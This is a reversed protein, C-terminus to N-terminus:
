DTRDIADLDAALLAREQPDGVASLVARAAALHEDHLDGAGAVLAARAIAEHAYGVYFPSLGHDVAVRLSRRAFREALEGMGLEAAVRSVQWDAVARNRPAGVAHWHFWQGLTAALMEDDEDATRTPLELLEWARNFLLPGMRRHIGDLDTPEPADSM